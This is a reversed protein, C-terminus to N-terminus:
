SQQIWAIVWEGLQRQLTSVMGHREGELITLEAHQYAEAANKAYSLPVLEDEDGQIIWVPGTYDNVDDYIDVTQADEVYQKLGHFLTAYYPQNAMDPIMFAPALLIMGAVDESRENATMASVLGGQSHGMLYVQETDWFQKMADIVVHLDAKETLVSMKTIDNGSKSTLSGGYFDFTYGAIGAKALQIGYPAFRTYNDLYGHSMIVSAGIPNAPLYAVGYLVREECQVFLEQATYEDTRELVDGEWYIADPVLVQKSESVSQPSCGCVVGLVLFLVIIWKRRQM